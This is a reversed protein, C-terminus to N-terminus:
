QFSILLIKAWEKGNPYYRSLNLQSSCDSLEGWLFKLLIQRKRPFWFIRVYRSSGHSIRNVIMFLYGFDWFYYQKRGACKSILRNSFRSINEFKYNSLEVGGSITTIKGNDLKYWQVLHVQSLHHVHLTEKQALCVRLLLSTCTTWSLNEVWIYILTSVKQLWDSHQVECITESFSVFYSSEKNM